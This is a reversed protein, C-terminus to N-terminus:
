RGAAPPARDCERVRTNKGGGDADISNKKKHEGRANEIRGRRVNNACLFARMSYSTHVGVHTQACAASCCCCCYNVVSPSSVRKNEGAYEASRPVVYLGESRSTAAAAATMCKYDDDGGGGCSAIIAAIIIFCSDRAYM